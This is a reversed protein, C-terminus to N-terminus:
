EPCSRGRVLPIMFAALLTDSQFNDDDFSSLRNYFQGHPLQSLPTSYQHRITFRMGTLLHRASNPLPLALRKASVSGGNSATLAQSTM